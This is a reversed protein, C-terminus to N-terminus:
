VISRKLNPLIGFEIWRIFEASNNLQPKMLGFWNVESNTKLTQFTMQTTFLACICLM